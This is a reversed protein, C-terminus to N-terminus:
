GSKKRVYLTKVVKATVAGSEDVVNVDLDFVYKRGNATKERVQEILFSDIRFEATLATRGPRVFDVRAAKDWVIYENGLNHMFMLMYFPDVMAYISGGFQVGVYNTNYWGRKLRVKVYQLDNSVDVIHIGATIFPPWLNIMRGLLKPPIHKSFKRIFQAAM